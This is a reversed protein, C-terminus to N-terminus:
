VSNTKLMILQFQFHQSVWPFHNTPDSGSNPLNIQPNPIALQGSPLKANLVALAIPNINSGDCAVQTGGAQTLYGSAPMGNSNLHGAPCFQAGLTKASRDSTLQPLLTTMSGGLGNVQRVGQYAVFFFTRNKLVPGGLTGGFENQKLSARPQGSLKSFFDNANFINNRM